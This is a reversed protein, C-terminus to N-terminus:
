LTGECYKVEHVQVVRPNTSSVFKGGLKKILTNSPNGPRPNLKGPIEMVFDAKVEDYMYGEAEAFGDAAEIDTSAVYFWDQLHDVASCWYLKMPLDEEFHCSRHERLLHPLSRHTFVINDMAEHLKMFYNIANRYSSDKVKKYPTTKNVVLQYHIQNYDLDNDRTPYEISLVVKIETGTNYHYGLVEAPPSVDLSEFGWERHVEWIQFDNVTTYDSPTGGYLDLLEDSAIVCTFRNGSDPWKQLITVRYDQKCGVPRISLTHSPLLDSADIIAKSETADELEITLENVQMLEM